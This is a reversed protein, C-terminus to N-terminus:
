RHSELESFLITRGDPFRYFLNQPRTGARTASYVVKAIGEFFVPDTPEIVVASQSDKTVLKDIVESIEERGSYVKNGISIEDNDLIFVEISNQM